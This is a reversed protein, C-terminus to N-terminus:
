KTNILKVKNEIISYIYYFFIGMLITLIFIFIFIFYKGLLDMKHFIKSFIILLFYHSLYISYTAGSLFGIDKIKIKCTLELVACGYLIFLFPIGYLIFDDVKVTQHIVAFISIGYLIIGILCSILGSIFNYKDGKILVAIFMGIFFDFWILGTLYICDVLKMINLVIVLLAFCINFVTFKKGNMFFSISFLLYFLIEFTLTWAPPIIPFDITKLNIPLCLVSKIVYGANVKIWPFLDLKFFKILIGHLGYLGITYIWLMPFIRLGRKKLFGTFQQLETKNEVKNSNSYSLLFGSLCFFFHLFSGFFKLNGGFLSIDYILNEHSLVIMFTALVRLYDLSYIKTGNTQTIKNM